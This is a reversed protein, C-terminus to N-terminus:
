EVQRTVARRLANPTLGGVLVRCYGASLGRVSSLWPFVCLFTCRQNAGEDGRRAAEDVEFEEETPPALPITGPPHCCLAILIHHHFSSSTTISILYPTQHRDLRHAGGTRLGRLPAYAHFAIYAM